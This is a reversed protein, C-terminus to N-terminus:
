LTLVSECNSVDMKVTKGFVMPLNLNGHGARFGFLVPYDYESVAQAIIEEASLGFPSDNDKIETFQGVVLGSLGALFGSMKLNVMMRDIHYLYESVDEIFLLKGAPDFDYPTGRLSSLISLNGGILEGTAVGHRNLQHQKIVYRQREGSLLGFLAMMDADDKQKDPFNKPMPGHISAVGVKHQLVAHLATIDSYGVVWKPQKIFKDFNLAEIIRATGYGGRACFIAEVEDSDLMTQLDALRHEDTGAFQYYSNTVHEGVVVQYGLGRLFKEAFRVVEADIKGAPAVIGITANASLSPPFIM